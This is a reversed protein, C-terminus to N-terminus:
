GLYLIFHLIFVAFFPQIIYEVKLSFRQCNVEVTKIRFPIEYHIHYIM